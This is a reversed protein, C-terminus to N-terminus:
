GEVDQDLASRINFILAFCEKVGYYSVNTLLARSPSGTMGWESEVTEKGFKMGSEPGMHEDEPGRREDRQGLVRVGQSRLAWM